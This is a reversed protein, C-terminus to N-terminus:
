EYLIRAIEPDDMNSADFWVAPIVIDEAEGGQLVKVAMMMAEYGMTYPDQAVAGYFYGSRIANNLTSGSDFGIVILDKYAGTTRDLATGDTTASLIGTASAENVCFISLVSSDSVVSQALNRIDEDARSAAIDTRIIVAAEKEAPVAFTDNGSIEVAGPQWKQCLEHMRNAFGITRDRHVTMIADPAIISFVAPEAPTANKIKEIITENELLKDAAQAAALVSNSASTATLAGEPAADFTIDYAVVPIGADRATIMQEDLAGSDCAAILIADPQMALAQNLINIQEDVQSSDASANYNLNVTIGQEALAEVADRAGDVNINCYEISFSNGVMEIDYSEEAAALGCSLLLAMSLTLAMTKLINQKM